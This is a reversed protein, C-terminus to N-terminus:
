WASRPSEGMRAFRAVADSRNVAGSVRLLARVHSKVTPLAVVLREAIEANSLGAMMLDLVERQRATLRSRLAASSLQPNFAATLGGRLDLGADVLEIPREASEALASCLRTLVFRQEEARQRVGLLGWLSGLSNAYTEVIEADLNRGIVHLLGVVIGASPVAAVVMQRRGSSTSLRRMDTRGLRIVQQELAPADDVQVPDSPVTADTELLSTEGARLWPTWVANSIRGLAVAEARCGTLALEGARDTLEGVSGCLRLTALTTDLTDWRLRDVRESANM